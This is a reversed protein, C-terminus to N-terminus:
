GALPRAHGFYALEWLAPDVYQEVLRDGEFAEIRVTGTFRAYAGDVGVMKAVVRKLLPLEDAFKYRLITREREFTIVYRTEGDQYTYRLLDATPKGTVEDTFVKDTEFRVKTEDDAVVKGDKALLFVILPRYDYAEVTTISTVVITFPGIKGRAWYWDHIFTASPVDGWNHDHYGVGVSEFSEDGVKATMRVRGQPVAIFWAFLHKEGAQGFYTHGTRPRWSPVEGILEIEVSVDEIAAKIDYRNLDGVFHNDGIRVDCGDKSASFAEAEFHLTKDIKRGDPMTLNITISPDFPADTIQASKTNFTVVVAAGNELHADFYWWEYGDDTGIRQGDEWASVKSPSLGLREYDDESGAIRFSGVPKTSM